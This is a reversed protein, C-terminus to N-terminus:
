SRDEEHTGPRVALLLGHEVSIRAEDGAFTNSVGRSTGAALTEDALGYTLGDTSVGEAAGGLPLLSVIEGREGSITRADRVVHVLATGLVADIEVGAYREHGLLLMGAALHDLRGGGDGVVVVRTAGSALAADLALELDTADKEVPHREIRAGAAEVAALGAATASDFDGVALDVHLGLAVARDVGGDAAIVAAAPPLTRPLPLAASDGGSVVIVIRERM